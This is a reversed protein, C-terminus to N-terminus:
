FNVEKKEKEPPSIDEGFVDDYDNMTHTQNDYYIKGAPGTIGTIRSKALIVYTTNREREDEALKDRSLLINASASKTIVSSGMVDSESVHIDTSDSSGKKRTHNILVFSIGHSKIISKCWKMFLGQDENSMGEILDQLVDIVIIKVGSAIVMQEITEQIQEVTGDRDDVLFFRPSGDEKKFLEEAKQKTHESELIELKEEQELLSLKRQIHRSLLTEGYQGSNLEMSVVGILYPSNFIMHYVIENVLATKGISTQAAINYIHGLILGGGIMKQLKKLFPPLTVKELHSQELIHSYLSDSGMVGAPVYAKANYFDSIFQREKNKLLMENPDKLSWKAIFVKGKPLVPVIKELSKEGADDNDMGVIIKEFQSFWEYQLALQKACGTEGVTPSVVVPEFDWNKFKYYDKLMQYGALQDHEGGVILCIKGGNKFKFQGFLDCDKGTQGISGGFQKPHVRPKWGTLVGDTTCPYYVACVENDENYETRVGFVKLVDDRIGRYNNGELTTHSKLEETQATTVAPKLSKETLNLNEKVSNKAKSRVLKKAHEAKWEESLKKYGCDSWCYYSGDSYIALNDKSGCNPCSEHKVFAAM